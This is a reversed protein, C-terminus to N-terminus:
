ILGIWRGATVAGLWLLLSLGAYLRTWGAVGSLRVSRALLVQVALAAALLVLKVVFLPNSLYKQASTAFLLAGTLVAGAIAGRYPWRLGQLLDGAPISRPAAGLGALGAVLVCGGLLAIFVIHLSEIGAFVAISDAIARVPALGALSELM